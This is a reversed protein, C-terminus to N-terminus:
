LSYITQLLQNALMQYDTKNYEKAPLAILEGLTVTVSRRRFIFDFFNINYTERIHVPLIKAGSNMALYVIGPKATNETNVGVIKGEPFIMINQKERLKRLSDALYDEITWAVKKTPFSGFLKLFPKLWPKNYYYQSTLPHIPIIQKAIHFPLLSLLFPDIKSNHNAAIIIPKSTSTFNEVGFIKARLFFKLPIHLVFFLLIQTHALM